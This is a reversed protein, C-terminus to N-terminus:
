PLAVLVPQQKSKSRWERYKEGLRTGSYKSVKWGEDGQGDVWDITLQKKGDRGTTHGYFYQRRSLLLQALLDRKETLNGFDKDDLLRSQSILNIRDALTYYKKPLKRSVAFTWPLMLSLAYVTFFLELTILASTQPFMRPEGHTADYRPAFVGGALVTLHFSMLSVIGVWVVRLHRNKIANFLTIPLFSYYYNVLISEKATSPRSLSVFPQTLKFFADINLWLLSLLTALLSPLFNWLMDAHSLALRGPTTSVRPRFGNEAIKSTCTM